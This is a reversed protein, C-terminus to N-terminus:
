RMALPPRKRSGGGCSEALLLFSQVRGHVCGRVSRTKVLTTALVM